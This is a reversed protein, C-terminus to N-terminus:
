KEADPEDTDSVEAIQTFDLDVDFFAERKRDYILFSPTKTVNTLFHVENSIDMRVVQVDKNTSARLRGSLWPMLPELSKCGHCKASSVILLTLDSGALAKAVTKGNVTKVSSSPDDLADESELHAPLPKPSSVYLKLEDSGFTPHSGDFPRHKLTFIYESDQELGAVKHPTLDRIKLAETTRANYLHSYHILRITPNLYCLVSPTTRDSSTCNACAHRDPM